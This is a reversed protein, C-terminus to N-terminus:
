AAEDSLERKSEAIRFWVWGVVVPILLLIAAKLVKSSYPELTEELSYVRVETEGDENLQIWAIHGALAQPAQQDIEDSEHAPGSFNTEIEHFRIDNDMDAPLPDRPDLFEQHKWAVYGHGVSPEAVPFLPNGLLRTETSLLHVLLLRDVTSVNVTVALWEADLSIATVTQTSYNTEDGTMRDLEADVQSDVSVDLPLDSLRDSDIWGMRLIGADDSFVLALRDRHAELILLEGPQEPLTLQEGDLLMQRLVGAENVLLVPAGGLTSGLAISRPSDVGLKAINQTPNTGALHYIRVSSNTAVALYGSSMSLLPPTQLDPHQLTFPTRTTLNYVMVEFGGDATEDVSAIWGDAGAAAQPAELGRANFHQHTADWLLVTATLLLIAAAAAGMQKSGPTTSWRVASQVKNRLIAVPRDLDSLLWAVRMPLTREDFRSWVAAHTKDTLWIAAAAVLMGGIIDSFWHIGLYIISFATLAIYVVLFRRYTIWRDDEDWRQFAIWLAFPIGIHLSPMGNTFPDIRTFWTNIEPTLNYALTQMGDISNGTVQVNFFLYFPVALAYVFFFTLSIRDALWRDDFYCTYLVASSVVFMYGAVYFHTLVFTLADNLFTQQVWLSLDGELAYVIPTMDLRTNAMLIRDLGDLLDKWVYISFILLMHVWYRRFMDIFGSLNLRKGLPRFLPMLLLGGLLAGTVWTIYVGTGVM